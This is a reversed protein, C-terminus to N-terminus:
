DRGDVGLLTPWGSETVGHAGLHSLHRALRRLGRHTLVRVSEPTRGMIEAVEAVELQGLTRLLVAEAQEPSLLTTVFRAAEQGDLGSLDLEAVSPRSREASELDDVPRPLRDQRRWADFRRRRALTYVWARFSEEAGTFTGINRAVELWVQGTLDDALGPNTAGIYRRLGPGFDDWLKKWALEDGQRAAEVTEEFGAELL